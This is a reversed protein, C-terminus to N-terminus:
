YETSLRGSVGTIVSRTGYVGLVNPSMQDMFIIAYHAPRAM